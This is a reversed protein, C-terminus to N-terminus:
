LKLLRLLRLLVTFVCVKFQSESREIWNRLCAVHFNGPRGVHRDVAVSEASHAVHERHSVVLRADHVVLGLFHFELINERVGM